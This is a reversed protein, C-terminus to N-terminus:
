PSGAIMARIERVIEADSLARTEARFQGFGRGLAMRAEESLQAPSTGPAVGALAPDTAFVNAVFVDMQATIRAPREIFHGLEHMDSDFVVFVPISQHLGDKLYANILDPNQDRLFVRVDMRNNDEALRGIIPLNNIADGCWDETIVLVRVPQPLSRFFERDDDAIHLLRTNEDFRDQNRTMQARYAAFTMGQQFREYSVSM